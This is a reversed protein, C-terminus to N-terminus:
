IPPRLSSTPSPFPPPAAEGEKVYSFNFGGVAASEEEESDDGGLLDLLADAGKTAAPVPTKPAPAPAPAPAAVVVEPEVEVEEDDDELDPMEDDVSFGGGIGLMGKLAATGNQVPAPAPAPTDEVKLMSKLKDAMSQGSTDPKPPAPTPADELQGAGVGLLAKLGAAAAEKSQQQKKKPGGKKLLGSAAIGSIKGRGAGRGKKAWQFGVATGNPPAQAVSSHVLKSAGKGASASRGNSTSRPNSASRVPEPTKDWVEKQVEAKAKAVMKKVMEKNGSGVMSQVTKEDSKASTKLVQDWLCLKGRFNSCNGQLTTGALFEDDMVIDVCGKTNHMGIVTGRAGFTAGRASLNVIRDGLEPATSVAVSVHNSKVQGLAYLASVPVKVGVKKPEMEKVAASRVESAREIALVADRGLASTTSIVRPMKSTECTDVWEKVIKLTEEGKHNAGFLQSVDYFRAQPDKCLGAVLSPFRAKYSAILKVAKPSFEWDRRVRQGNKSEDAEGSGVVKLSDGVTWAMGGDARRQGEEARIRSYGLVCYEGKHKLNLGMDYRGPDVSFSGTIKHLVSCPLKLIHAADVISMFQESVSRVIALGFPPEPPVVEVKVNVSEKKEDGEGVSNTGGVVGRCGKYSNTGGVVGRCGKYKGALLVVDKGVPFRNELSQPPAEQFRPDPAPSAFLAMQLPVDAEETGFVKTTSGDLNRKMGQLAVVKLRLTVDGVDVGGSGPTGDGSKYTEIIANSEEIWRSRKDPAWKKVKGGERVECNENSMAVVKAEHMMPWNCFVSKGVLTKALDEVPPLQAPLRALTLITSAYKSETGFCNLGIKDLVTAQIPLVNMSPFGPHPIKTGPIIEPKFTVGTRDPEKYIAMRSQCQNIDKLGIERNCSPVDDLNSPDWSFLLVNGFSNRNREDTTLAKDPCFEKIAAKLREANIFPLLNVGEWPNRKGNMDVQFDVPYFDHIPSGTSQMLKQYPRPVLESSLPPLCGMLQQFPLFPAGPDFKMGKFVEDLEVLDSIMPGYHYPYFWSWSICGRYYYALCWVLGEMYVQRLHQHKSTCAPTMDLKEFYYRGKFDKTPELSGDPVSSGGTIGKTQLMDNFQKNKESEIERLEDDSPGEKKGDRKDWKRKKKLFAVLFTMFVFDDIVAELNYPLSTETGKQGGFEIDLYERLVSLHLLQFAGEHTYKIVTKSANKNKNFGGGFNVVERLITFHPEHSVLGLMILDADQGYMCHRQNPLYNPKAKQDRIHQMIKHEGEGPVEHGSFYIQLNQWLPDEKIKKRIFYKICDSVKRMFQTGPTICNSDFVGGGGEREQLVEGKELRQQKEDEMDKASRFRRSRQQNMKARPAVGDIAMYITQQPKVIDVIRNLYHMIGLFM